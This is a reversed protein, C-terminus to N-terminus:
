PPTGFRDAAVQHIMSHGLRPDRRFAHALRLGHGGVVGGVTPCLVAAHFEVDPLQWCEGHFRHDGPRPCAAIKSCCLLESTPRGRHGMKILKQAVRFGPFTKEVLFAASNGKADLGAGGYSNPVTVGFYGKQGIIPFIHEPWWEEDDMRQALPTCIRAPSATRRIWFRRSTRWCGSFLQAVNATGAAATRHSSM